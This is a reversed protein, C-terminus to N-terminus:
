NPKKENIAWENEAEKHNSANKVGKRKEKNEKLGNNGGQMAKIRNDM